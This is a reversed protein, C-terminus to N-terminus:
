EPATKKLEATIFESFFRGAAEGIEKLAERRATKALEEPLPDRWFLETPDICLASALKQVMSSSPFKRMTELM